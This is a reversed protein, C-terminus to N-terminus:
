IASTAISLHDLHAKMQRENKKHSKEKDEKEKDEPKNLMGMFKDM